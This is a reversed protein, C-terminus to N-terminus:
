PAGALTKMERLWRVYKQRFEETYRPGKLDFDTRLVPAQDLKAKLINFLEELERKLM